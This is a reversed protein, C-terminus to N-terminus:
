PRASEGREFSRAALTRQAALDLCSARLCRTPLASSMLPRSILLAADRQDTRLFPAAPGCSRGTMPEHPPSEAAELGRDGQASEPSLDEVGEDILEPHGGRLERLPKMPGDGDHPNPTLSALAAVAIAEDVVELGLYTNGCAHRTAAAVDGLADGAGELPLGRVKPTVAM